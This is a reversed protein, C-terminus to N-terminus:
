DSDVESLTKEDVWQEIREDIFNHADILAREIGTEDTSALKSCLSFLTDINAGFEDIEVLQMEIAYRRSM